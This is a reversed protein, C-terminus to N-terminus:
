YRQLTAGDFQAESSEPQQKKWDNSVASIGIPQTTLMWERARRTKMNFSSDGTCITLHAAIMEDIAREARSMGSYLCELGQRM